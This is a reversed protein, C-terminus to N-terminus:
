LREIYTGNCKDPREAAAGYLGAVSLESVVTHESDMDSEAKGGLSPARETRVLDAVSGNCYGGQDIRLSNAKSNSPVHNTIYEATASDPSRCTLLYRFAQRFGHNKWAYILPNMASNSVAMWFSIEYFLLCFKGKTKIITICLFYPFWTFTFCGLIIFVM